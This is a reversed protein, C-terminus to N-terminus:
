PSNWHTRTTQWACERSLILFPTLLLHHLFLRLFRLIHRVLIRAASAIQHVVKKEGVAIVGSSHHSAPWPRKGLATRARYELPLSNVFGLEHIIQVVVIHQSGLENRIAVPCVQSLGLRGTPPEFLFIPM